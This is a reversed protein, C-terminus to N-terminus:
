PSLFLINLQSFKRMSVPFPMLHFDNLKSDYQSIYIIGAKYLTNKHAQCLRMLINEFTVIQSRQRQFSVTIKIKLLM